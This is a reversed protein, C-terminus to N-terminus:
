PTDIRECCAAEAEAPTVHGIPESLHRGNFPDVQELM